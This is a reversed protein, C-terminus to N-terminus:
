IPRPWDQIMGVIVHFSQCLSFEGDSLDDLRGVWLLCALAWAQTELGLSCNARQKSPTLEIGEYEVTSKIIKRKFHRYKLNHCNHKVHEMNENVRNM